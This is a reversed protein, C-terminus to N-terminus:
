WGIYRLTEYNLNKRMWSIVEERTRETAPSLNQLSTEDLKVYNNKIVIANQKLNLKKVAFNPLAQLNKTSYHIEYDLLLEGFDTHVM